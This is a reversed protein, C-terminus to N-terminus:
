SDKGGNRQGQQAPIDAVAPPCEGTGEALPWVQNGTRDEAMPPKSLHCNVAGVGHRQGEPSEGYEVSVSVAFMLWLPM